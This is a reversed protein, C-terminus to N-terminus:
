GSVNEDNILMLKMGAGSTENPLSVFGFKQYFEEKGKAAVLGIAITSAPLAHNKIYALLTEIVLQGIKKGQYIPLVVVDQIYYNIFGDGVLRGMAIIQKDDTISITYISNKLAHFVQKPDITVWEVSNRLTNYDEVTLKNEHITIKM